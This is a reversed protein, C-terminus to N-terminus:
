ESYLWTNLIAPDKPDPYPSDMAMKDLAAVEADAEKEIKTLAADTLTGM